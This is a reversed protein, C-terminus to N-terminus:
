IFALSFLSTKLLKKFLHVSDAERFSQPLNYWVQPVIVAFSQDGKTKLRSRPVALLHQNAPRL